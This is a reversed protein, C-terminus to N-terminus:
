GEDCRLVHAPIRDIIGDLTELPETVSEARHRGLTAIMAYGNNFEFSVDKLSMLHEMMRPDLVASAFARDDSEVVFARNFEEWEFDIDSNTMAGWARSFVGEPSVVLRPLHDAIHIATIAVHHTTTKRNEGSGTTTTYQYDCVVADRGDWPGTMGYTFKRKRGVNFPWEDDNWRDGVRRLDADGLVTFGHGSAFTSLKEKRKKDLFYLGVTAGVGLVLVGIIIAAIM